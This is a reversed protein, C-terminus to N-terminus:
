SRGFLSQNKNRIKEITYKESNKIANDSWGIYQDPSLLLNKLFTVLEPISEYTFCSDNLDSPIVLAGPVIFPKAHKIVDFINGSSKTIGYIEPINSCIRTQVVSPIFIFHASDLKEDFEDQDVLKQNYYFLRTHKGRFEKARSIVSAGYEKHPGGLLTIDLPLEM